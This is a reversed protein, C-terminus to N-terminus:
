LSELYAVLDDLEREGLPTNGLVAEPSHPGALAERLTASRGDHLYPGKDYVGVLTPPNYGKYVDGREELGVVHIKGDTFEPGKHCTACGVAASRFM